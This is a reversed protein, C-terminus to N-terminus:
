VQGPPRVKNGGGQGKTAAQHEKLENGIFKDHHRTNGSAQNNAHKM